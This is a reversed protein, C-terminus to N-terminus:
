FSTKGSSVKHQYADSHLPNQHRPHCINCDANGGFKAAMRQMAPDHCGACIKAPDPNASFPISGKGDPEGHCVVCKVLMVGHKSEKWDQTARATSKAHCSVCDAYEEPVSLHAGECRVKPFAWDLYLFFAGAGLLLVAFVRITMKADLRM